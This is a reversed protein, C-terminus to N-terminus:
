DFFEPPLGHITPLDPDILQGDSLYWRASSCKWDVARLVLGRKVPNLHFYDISGLVAKQTNLNRDFGPGEQWFRFTTKGPRERITLENLLPSREEELLKKVRYSFPRKIVYLLAGIKVPTTTPYVLLHVHEPMRVFAVLRFTHNAIAKDISECLMRRRRDDDLLQMRRYCSFTLEHFDGLEHVHKITKRHGEM